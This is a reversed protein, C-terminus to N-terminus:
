QVLEVNKGEEYKYLLERMEPVIRGLLTRQGKERERRCLQQENSLQRFALQTAAAEAAALQMGAQLFTNAISLCARCPM